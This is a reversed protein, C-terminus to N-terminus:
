RIDKYEKTAPKKTIVVSLFNITYRMAMIFAGEGRLRRASTHMCFRQIFKVKGVKNLRRAIDADEGYFNIGLDFGGIDELAKKRAVFNGGVVMYGVLFYAPWILALNYLWTMKQAFFSFDYYIYPGSLCVIKPYKKFFYQVKDVWGKPMKTDADIFAILDGKAELLGRQRAKTIGKVSETVVKIEPFGRAMSETGDTSANNVVIIEFLGAGNEKVSKLCQGIYKEENYAIIVLSIKM